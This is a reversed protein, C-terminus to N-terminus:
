GAPANRAQVRIGSLAVGTLDLEFRMRAGEVFLRLSIAGTIEECRVQLEGAALEANRVLLSAIALSLGRGAAESHIRVANRGEARGALQAKLGPAALQGDGLQVDGALAIRDLLTRTQETLGLGQGGVLQRLLSEAFPQLWLKGRDTIWPGLLAGRREFEVGAVPVAPFQYLYSRGNPADVYIGLRSVGMRSDPGVHEVSADKFEVQGQRIPVTVDADFLLHADTIQARLTGEAGALPALSWAGADQQLVPQAFRAIEQLQAASAIRLSKLEIRPIHIDLAGDAADFTIGPWPLKAPM